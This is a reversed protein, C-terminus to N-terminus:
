GIMEGILLNKYSEMGETLRIYTGAALMQIESEQSGSAVEGASRMNDLVQLAWDRTQVVERPLDRCLERVRNENVDLLSMFAFLVAHTVLVDGACHAQVSSSLLLSWLEATMDPLALAGPGAAHLIVALTKLCLSLLSPEFLVRRMRSSSSTQVALQFRATLPFFFATSLLPGTTNVAASPRAGARKTTKTKDNSDKSLRSKFSALKLVDPGTADDAAQAAIPRLFSATLSDTISDLAGYGLPKLTSASAPGFGPQSGEQPLYFREMRDPLHKSPFAAAAAYESTDFGALERAGLGLATLVSARQSLSYDGNFFTLAFWPGVINPQAVVLSVMGQLRLQDFNDMEFADHLGVLISALDQAHQQVETGFSAKRRILLPATNLALKQKDYNEIDRFYAILDRIYVPAKPKDRRIMTPDDDSDEADSDPKDYAVIDDDAGAKTTGKDDDDSDLEEIVFGTKKPLVPPRRVPKAAAKPPTPKAEAPANAASRAASKAVPAQKRLSEFPGVMDTILVLDKYWQAEDTKMEDIHFDLKQKSDDMLSSLGEGVAMGLFKARNQSAGLRNSVTQLYTRSRLLSTLNRPSSRYVYGASLLIVQAKTEQQIIPAHKIFLQDGFESMSKDLIDALGKADEAVAALAARRLGIGGILGVAPDKLLWSKLQEHLLGSNGSVHKILGAVASVTSADVAATDTSISAFFTEGAYKLIGFLVKKQEHALLHELLRKLVGDDAESDLLLGSVLASIVTDPYGLRLAKGLLTSHAKQDEPSGDQSAWRIIGRALWQSYEKGNAVWVTPLKEESFESRAVTEAEAAFSIIKGSGVVNLFEQVLPRRKANDDTGAASVAWIQSVAEDGVLVEALVDLLIRLQWAPNGPQDNTASKGDSAAAKQIRTEALLARLRVVLASLGTVSRLCAVLLELDKQSHRNGKKAKGCEDRLLTWYNPVIATVLVQVLQASLPTPQRVDVSAKNDALLYRLVSVLTDYDPENRLIELAEDASDASFKQRAAPTSSSTSPSTKKVERLLPEDQAASKSYATSVPTLLAEM